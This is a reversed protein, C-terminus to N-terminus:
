VVSGHKKSNGFDELQIIDCLTIGSSCMIVCLMVCLTIDSSCM